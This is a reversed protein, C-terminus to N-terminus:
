IGLEEDRIVCPAVFATTIALGFILTAIMHQMTIAVPANRLIQGNGGFLSMGDEIGM